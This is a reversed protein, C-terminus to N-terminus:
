VAFWQASGMKNDPDMHATTENNSLTFQWMELMCDCLKSLM